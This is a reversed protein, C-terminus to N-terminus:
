KGFPNKIKDLIGSGIIEKAKDLIEKAKDEGIGLKAAIESVINGINGILSNGELIENVKIGEENSIGTKKVLEAIFDTKDM